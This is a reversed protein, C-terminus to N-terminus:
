TMFLGILTTLIPDKYLHMPRTTTLICPFKTPCLSIVNVPGTISPFTPIIQPQVNAPIISISLWHIPTALATLLFYALPLSNSLVPTPSQILNLPFIRITKSPMEM